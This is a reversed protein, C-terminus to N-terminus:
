LYGLKQLRQVDFLKSGDYDEGRAIWWLARILKRMVAVLAKTSNGGNRSLRQQYWAAAYPCYIRQNSNIVRMALWYLMKRARGPGRKSIHLQSPNNRRDERTQGSTKECLNMGFGKELQECSDYDTLAGLYAVLVVATRAGLYDVLNRTDENTEAAEEIQRHLQGARRQSERLMGAIYIMKQRQARGMTCGSTTCASKLVQDIKEERLFHGGVRKMLERAGSPDDAVRAPGGYEGLLELLTASQLDVVDTVEPWHRALYAELAGVYKQEDREVLEDLDALSRLQRTPAEKQQWQSGVGCLYLHALLYAAKGDHLSDTGDFVKRANAVKDGNIRIVNLGAKRAQDVLVDSYTGTPEVVLTVTEFDLAALRDVVKPIQDREFYIVDTQDSVAQTVAAYFAIKAADVAFVLEDGDFREFRQEQDIWGQFSMASYTGKSM